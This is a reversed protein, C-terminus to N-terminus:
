CGLWALFALAASGARACLRMFLAYVRLLAISHLGLCGHGVVCFVVWGIAKHGVKCVMGVGAGVWATAGALLGGLVVVGEANAPLEWAQPDHGGLFDSLCLRAM